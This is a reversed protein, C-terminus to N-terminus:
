APIQINQGDCTGVLLFLTVFFVIMMPIGGLVYFVSLADVTGREEEETGDTADDQQPDAM